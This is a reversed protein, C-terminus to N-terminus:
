LKGTADRILAASLHMSLISGDKTLSKVEVPLPYTKGQLMEDFEKYLKDWIQPPILPNFRGLVEEQKWGFIMTAAPSWRRVHGELDLLIIAAPSSEFVRELEEKMRQLAVQVERRQLSVSALRLFTEVTNKNRIPSGKKVFINAAGFLQNNWAFGVGCIDSIKMAAKAMEAVKRPLKFVRYIFEDMKIIEAGFKKKKSEEDMFQDFYEAPVQIDLLNFGLTKRSFDNLKKIKGSTARVHFRGTSSDYANIVIMSDELLQSLKRAILDYIDAEPPM